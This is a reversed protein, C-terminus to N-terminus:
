LSPFIATSISRPINPPQLLRDAWRRFASEQVTQIAATAASPPPPPSSHGHGLWSFLLPLQPHTPIMYASITRVRKRIGVRLAENSNM